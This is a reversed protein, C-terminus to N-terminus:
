GQGDPRLLYVVTTELKTEDAQWDGYVEWSHGAFQRANSAAWAHIARHTEPLRAYPGVHVAVAAEGTPTETAFVEGSPAFPQSVEVGFDVEMPADPRTPHHYLFINHGGAHLGPQSRLFAWVLDLAPRWAAAIERIWVTRRVAAVRLAPAIQVSVVPTM